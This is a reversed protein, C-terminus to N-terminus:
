STVTNRKEHNTIQYHYGISLLLYFAVTVLLSIRWDIVASIATIILLVALYFKTFPDKKLGKFSFMKLNSVNLFCTVIILALVLISLGSLSERALYIGCFMMASSPTALGKFYYSQDTSINFKALRLAGTVPILLCVYSLPHEIYNYLVFAPAVCFTVMDALSDLQAGFESQAQLIRAALGDWLDFFGGLLILFVAYKPESVLVLFGCLLNLCTIASPLASKFKM